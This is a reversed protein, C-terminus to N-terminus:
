SYALLERDLSWVRVDTLGTRERYIEREALVCLDGCGVNSMAHDVLSRGTAAGEVLSQLFDENWSFVHLRWPATGNKVMTLVQCFTEATKRRVRGDALKSIHNGTEVVATLPLIFADGAGQRTKMEAQVIARDQDRGPVPLLNCLISTDVFWTTSSM